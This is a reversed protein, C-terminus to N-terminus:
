LAIREPGIVDALFQSVDMAAVAVARAQPALDDGALLEPHHRTLRRNDRRIREVALAALVDFFDEIPNTM